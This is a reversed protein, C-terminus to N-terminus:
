PPSMPSAKQRFTRKATKPLSSTASRPSSPAAAPTSTTPTPTTRSYSQMSPSVSEPTIPAGATKKLVTIGMDYDQPADFTPDTLFRLGAYEVLVTPGTIVNITPM